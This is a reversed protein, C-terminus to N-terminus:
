SVKTTRVHRSAWAWGPLLVLLPGWRALCEDNLDNLFAALFERTATWPRGTGAPPLAQTALSM